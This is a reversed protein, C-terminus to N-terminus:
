QLQVTGLAQENNSGPAHAMSFLILQVAYNSPTITTRTANSISLTGDVYGDLWSMLSTPLTGTGASSPFECRVTVTTDADFGNVTVATVGIGGDTWTATFAEGSTILIPEVSFDPSTIEILSPAAVQESFAEIDGGGATITLTDVAGGWLIENAADTIYTGDPDPMLTVDRLGGTIYIAGADPRPDDNGATPKDCEVAYCDGEFASTCSLGNDTNYSFIASVGSSVFAGYDGSWATVTGFGDYEVGGAGGNSGGGDAGGAGGAHGSAGSGGSGGSAAGGTSSSAGSGSTSGSDDDGCGPGLVLATALVLATPVHVLHRAM